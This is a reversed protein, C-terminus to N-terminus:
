FRSRKPLNRDVTNETLRQMEADYMVNKNDEVYIDYRVGKSDNTVRVAKQSIITSVSDIKNGTLCELLEICNAEKQMVKGFVFDDTIDKTVYEAYVEEVTMEHKKDIKKKEKM